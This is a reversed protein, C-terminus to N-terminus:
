VGFTFELGLGLVKKLYTFARGDFACDRSVTTYSAPTCSPRGAGRSSFNLAFETKFALELQEFIRFSLFYKLVTFIKPAFETKWPLRLNNLIRFSLFYVNLVTFEPCVRNKLSLVLQEFIRFTFVINLVTFIKLSFETKLALLLQEFNQTIFICMWYLSNLACETKWPLCFNSLCRSHLVNKLYLWFNWSLSNEPLRLTGWFDQFIFFIEVCHFIEPCVINKLNLVLQEFTRFSLFYKLVTSLKLAVRNKLSFLQEFIQIIFFLSPGDPSALFPTGGRGYDHFICFSNPIWFLLNFSFKGKWVSFTCNNYSELGKWLWYMQIQTNRRWTLPFDRLSAGVAQAGRVPHSKCQATQWLSHHHASATCNGKHWSQLRWTLLLTINTYEKLIDVGVIHERM